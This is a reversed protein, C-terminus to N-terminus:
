PVAALGALVPILVEDGPIPDFIIIITGGVILVGACIALATGYAPAAAPAPALAPQWGRRVNRESYTMSEPVFIPYPVPEQKPRKYKWWVIVGPEIQGAYIDYWGTDDRGLYVEAPFRSGPVWEIPAMNWDYPMAVPTMGHLLGAARAADMAVLRAFLEGWAQERDSWPKIEWMDGSVSDLLDVPLNTGPITYEAHVQDMRRIMWLAQIRVHVNQSQLRRESADWLAQGPGWWWHGSPDTYNIPNGLVYNWGNLTLPRRQDGRWPDRTIFRGQGGSYYRARLHILSTGDQWEGAFAYNTTGAGTSSLVTGYPQYSRALTVSATVTTLQRVSNLADGLFYSATTGAYQAIRTYGYLYTNNSNTAGTSLDGLVQTLGANLDLTYTTVTSNASNCPGVAPCVVQKQRDGLGNYTFTTGGTAFHGKVSTLRNASDYGYDSVGDYLLNGNNDWTYTIGGANTLRNAADYTYVTTVTVVTQSLRNGVADYTYTFVNGDSSNANTLRYLPDYTYSIATVDSAAGIYTTRRSEFADFYETGSTGANPASVVGLRAEDVRRTDNDVGTLNAQQAGDIWFTLYGDNAGVGTAARWDVEIFHTADSINFWSTAVSSGSDPRITARLQYQSASRRLDVSLIQTSPSQVGNFLTHSSGSPLTISNPDFYFRARYRTEASPAGDTVYLTNTDDIVAAMGRSGVLAAASTASLDGSDTVSSSWASLTGTEFGNAFILDSTTTLRVTETVAARNGSPDYEYAYAALTDTPTSHALILLRDAHDYVYGTTVSNPQAATTMRSAADYGYTTVKSTWDQLTILRSALDYTYTVLKADPYTLTLRNSASDYGYVVTGTFPDTVTIPRSLLDYAWTTAGVGDTMVTREGLANYTFTVDGTTDPYDITVLRNLLDYTHTTVIGNADLMGVRNGAVDYTYVTTHTLPDTVSVLRNLLDYTQTITHTLGDTIHLMNGAADYTYTTRVNTKGDVAGGSVYNEVVATLRNLLDYEFKTVIGNPDTVQTRNGAVDYTTVTQLDEDPRAADYVGNVYNVTVTVPRGLADYETRTIHGLPDKSDVVRGLADYSVTASAVVSGTLPWTTTILRGLNDYGYTTTILTTTQGPGGRQETTTAREGASGYATTQIINRDPLNGDFTGTGTYNTTATVPRGASDYGTHGTRPLNTNALQTTSIVSGSADYQTLTQLDRDPQGSSFVGDVYNTTVTLPRNLADYETYTIRALSTGVYQTTSIVNGNPDYATTATINKDAGSLGPAYNTTMTMPRNLVDYQTYSTRALNSIGAYQTTSIVNGTADYQTVTRLDKDPETSSFVGDVYNATMTVPRNLADYETFTTRALNTGVYQTTSIVNGNIDFLNVAKLNYDTAASPATPSYNVTVTVPRNLVDYDSKTMFGLTDTMFIQNGVVDYAYKTILNYRNLHNQPQGALYNRTTQTLRGANDYQNVAVVELPTSASTTTTVVRGLTDYGYTTAIGATDTVRITQGLADYQYQTTHGLPDSMAKILNLPQPSDAATTYTYLSRNSLTDTLVTLLTGSYALTTTLGRADVTQTLNNLVDYGLNTTQSLANTVSSLNAGNASWTMTTPQNLPDLFKAPRFNLDYTKTVISNLPAADNTLTNRGDYIHTESNGRGDVVTTTTTGSTYTIQVTPTINMGDYQRWARGQADYDTHVLTVAPQRPDKVDTLLHTTSSYVYTWDQGLVDTVTILDGTTLSYGYDVRRGTHDRLRILQGSGNYSFTLYRTSIPETVTLLRGTTLSYSYDFQHGQPNKWTVLKGAQDFTYVSQYTTTLIYTPSIYNLSALVGPYPVFTTVTGSVNIDFRFQNASHGKFWVIGAEGGPDTPFILRTDHNHTWGYGLTTTYTNTVVSAYTREFVLPGAVTPFSFDVASFDFGGTQSNIPDGAGGQTGCPCSSVSDDRPDGAGGIKASGNNSRRSQDPLTAYFMQYNLQGNNDGYAGPEDQINM